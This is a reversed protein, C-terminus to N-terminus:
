RPFSIEKWRNAFSNLQEPTRIVDQPPWQIGGYMGPWFPVALYEFGPKPSFSRMGVKYEAVAVQIILHWISYTAVYLKIKHGPMPEGDYYLVNSYGSGAFFYGAFWMSVNSPISLSKAFHHRVPRTFFHDGRGMQDLIIATKFAFRAMARCRSLSFTVGKTKGLILDAMAPKAHKDELNSMWGENCSKCVVKAKLDIEPSNWQNIINGNEDRQVFRFKKSPPLLKGM